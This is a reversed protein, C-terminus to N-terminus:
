LAVPKVDELRLSLLPDWPSGCNCLQSALAQHLGPTVQGWLEPFTSQPLVLCPSSPLVLTGDM